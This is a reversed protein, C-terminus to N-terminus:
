WAQLLESARAVDDHNDIECWHGPDIVAARMSITGAAIADALAVEHYHHEDGAAVRKELAGVLGDHWSTVNLSYINVTKLCHQSATHHTGPVIGTLQMDETVTAMSGDMWPKYPSVMAANPPVLSQLATTDVMVDAEILLVDTDVAHRACWLSYLNNTSAYRPNHVFQWAMDPWTDTLHGCLDDALHGTVVVAQSVGVDFLRAVTHDILPRQGVPTLCKPRQRSALGMRTGM